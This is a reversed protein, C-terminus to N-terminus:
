CQIKRLKGVDRLDQRGRPNDLETAHVADLETRSSFFEALLGNNLDYIDLMMGSGLGMSFHKM